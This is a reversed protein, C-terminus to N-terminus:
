LIKKVQKFIEFVFQECRMLVYRNLKNYLLSVFRKMVFVSFLYFYHLFKTNGDDTLSSAAAVNVTRVETGCGVVASKLNDCNYLANSVAAFESLFFIRTTVNIIIVGLKEAAIACEEETIVTDCTAPAPAKISLARVTAILLLIALAALLTLFLYGM